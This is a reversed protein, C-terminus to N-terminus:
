AVSANYKGVRLGLGLAFRKGYIVSIDPPPAAAQYLIGPYDWLFHQQDGQSITADGSPLPLDMWPQDWEMLALKENDTDIAM